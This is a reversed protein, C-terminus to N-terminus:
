TFKFKELNLLFHMQQHSFLIYVETKTENFANNRKTIANLNMEQHNLDPICCKKFDVPCSLSGSQPDM